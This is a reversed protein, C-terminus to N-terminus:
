RRVRIATGWVLNDNDSNRTGWVLNDGEQSTGWVLNDGDSTGWVLNDGDWTGWVLNDGDWTGWVLNDETLGETTGWLIGGDDQMLGIVRDRWVLDEAWTIATGWVLNDMEASTGWVLNDGDRATGWVLNDDWQAAHYWLADTGWVLNDDWIFAQSWGVIQGGIVTLPAPYVRLWQSGVPMDTNIALAMTLAGHVNIEGAGQTLGDYPHGDGDRLPLATFQLVAKLANASLAPGGANAVRSAQLVLASLGTTVAAAMSTGSLKAFNNNGSQSSQQLQPYLQFLSATRPADSTLAVGPAVLDPKAFGDFWTPGRSSFTAMRDDAISITNLTDVAGVTVASPSNGPSTVGAYAPKGDVDAGLNGAATVVVIGARVAQEVARVLPDSTAPEYIPHGLSLNIIDIKIADAATSKKNAVIFELARVVDSSRGRGTDDLVKFGYLTAGPAIGVFEKQSEVGSSAILGAVHTGHGYDDYPRVAIGGHTYDWFGAISGALDRNPDIGSDVVAVKIGAGTFSVASLGLTTRLVDVIQTTPKGRAEYKQFSRVEADISVALVSPDAELAALEDSRLEVTLASLEEHNALVVNGRSQLAKRLSDRRAAETQIIVRHVSGSKRAASVASDLKSRRGQASAPSVALLCLAVGLALALPRPSLKM